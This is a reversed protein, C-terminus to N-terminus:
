WSFPRDDRGCISDIQRESWGCFDGGDFRRGASSLASDMRDEFPTDRCLIVFFGFYEGINEFNTRANKFKVETCDVCFPIAGKTETITTEKVSSVFVEYTSHDLNITNATLSGWRTTFLDVNNINITNTVKLDGYDLTLQSGTINLNQLTKPNNPFQGSIDFLSIVTPASVSLTVDSTSDPVTGTDWNNPDDWNTGDGTGVWSVASLLQRSELMETVAPWHSLPSRSRRVSRPRLPSSSSALRDQMSALWRFIM